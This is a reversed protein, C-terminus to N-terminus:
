KPYAVYELKETKTILVISIELTITNSLVSCLVSLIDFLHVCLFILSCSRFLAMRIFFSLFLSLLSFLTRQHADNLTAPRWTKRRKNATLTTTDRISADMLPRKSNDLKIAVLSPRNPRNSRASNIWSFHIPDWVSPSSQFSEDNLFRNHIRMSLTILIIIMPITIITTVIQLPRCHVSQQRVRIDVQVSPQVGFWSVPIIRIRARQCRHQLHRISRTRESVVTPFPAHPRHSRHRRHPPYRRPCFVLLSPKARRERCPFLRTSAMMPEGPARTKSALRIRRSTQCDYNFVLLQLHYWRLLVSLGVISDNRTHYHLTCRTSCYGTISIPIFAFQKITPTSYDSQIHVSPQLAHFIICRESKSREKGDVPSFSFWNLRRSCITEFVKSTTEQGLSASSVSYTFESSSHNFKNSELDFNWLISVHFITRVSRSHRDRKM